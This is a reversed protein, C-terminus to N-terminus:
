PQAGEESSPNILLVPALSIVIALVAVMQRGLASLDGPVHFLVLWAVGSGILLAIPGSIWWSSASASLSRHNGAEAGDVSGAPGEARFDASAFPTRARRCTM